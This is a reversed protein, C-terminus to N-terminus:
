MAVLRRTRDSSGSKGFSLSRKWGDIKERYARLGCCRFWSTLCIICVQASSCAWSFPSELFSTYHRSEPWRQKDKHTALLPQSVSLHNPWPIEYEINPSETLYATHAFNISLPVIQCAEFKALIHFPLCLAFFIHIGLHLLPAILISLITLLFRSLLFLPHIIYLLNTTIVKLHDM